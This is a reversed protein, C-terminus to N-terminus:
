QVYFQNASNQIHSRSCRESICQACEIIHNPALQTHLASHTYNIVEQINNNQYLQNKCILWVYLVQEDYKLGTTYDRESRCFTM